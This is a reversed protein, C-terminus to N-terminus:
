GRGFHIKESFLEDFPPQLEIKQVEGDNVLINLVIMEAIQLKHEGSFEKYSTALTKITNLFEEFSPLLNAEQKELKVLNQSYQKIEDELSERAEKYAQRETDDYDKGMELYNGILTDHDNQARTRVKKLRKREEDRELRQDQIFTSAIKIYKRYDADTFAPNLHQFMLDIAKVIKLTRISKITKQQEESLRKKHSNDVVYLYYGNKAKNKIIQPKYEIGEINADFVKGRLYYHRKVYVGRKSPSRQIMFYEEESVMPQFDYQDVLRVETDRLSMVGCYFPDKFIRNLKQPSMFQKARQKHPDKIQRYYGEKNMWDCIAIESDGALRKKWAQQMLGWFQNKVYEGHKNIDYGHKVRGIALGAEHRKMNGRKVDDSLKDSYQKSLVFSLGLLMKGNADKSFQQTCFGLDKIVGSDVMEIIKGGDGMNRALRDPHWAIIGDYKGSNISELMKNFKPRTGSTKASKKEIITDVVNLKYNKALEQCFDVQDEISKEQKGKEDTSKRAYIVYRNAKEQYSLM